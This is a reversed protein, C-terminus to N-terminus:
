DEADDLAGHNQVSELLATIAAREADDIDPRWVEFL